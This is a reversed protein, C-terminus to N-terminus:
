SVVQGAASSNDIDSSQEVSPTPTAETDTPTTGDSEPPLMKVSYLVEKSRTWSYTNDFKLVDLFDLILPSFLCFYFWQWIKIYWECDGPCKCVHVGSEPIIHSEKRKVPVKLSHLM